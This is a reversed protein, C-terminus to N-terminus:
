GCESCMVRFVRPTPTRDTTDTIRATSLTAVPPGLHHDSERGDSVIRKPTKRFHISLHQVDSIDRLQRDQKPKHATRRNTWMWVPGKEISFLSDRPCDNQLWVRGPRAQERIPRRSECSQHDCSRGSPTTTSKWMRKPGSPGTQHPGGPTM